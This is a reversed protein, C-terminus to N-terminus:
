KKPDVLKKFYKDLSLGAKYGLTHKANYTLCNMIMLRFDSELQQISKYEENTAKILMGRLDIPNRIKVFYDPYMNPDVPELFILADPHARLKQIITYFDSHGTEEEKAAIPKAHPDFALAWEQNFFSELEKGQAYVWDDPRNFLFCNDLMLQVDAKFDNSSGYKNSALKKQVTSLDMPHKIIDKYEPIGLAIPDVPKLFISGYQNQQLRKLVRTCKKMDSSSLSGTAKESIKKTVIPSASKEVQSPSPTAIKGTVGKLEEKVKKDFPKLIVDSKAAVVSKSAVVPKTASIPKSIVLPKHSLSATDSIKSKPTVIATSSSNDSAKVEAEFAKLMKLADQHVQTEFTNFKMANTFILRGKAIFDEFSKIRGEKLRTKLTSFDMPHKIVDRYTPLNLAIPDVPELFWAGEPKLMLPKLIRRCRKYLDVAQDARDQSSKEYSTKEKSSKEYTHKEKYTKESDVKEKAPKEQTLSTKEKAPKEQTLLTKEKAPKEQPTSIKDKVPYGQVIKEKPLPTFVESSLAPKSIPPPLKVVTKPPKVSLSEKEVQFDTLLENFHSEFKKAQYYIPSGEANYKYCNSFILRIDELFLGIDNKYVGSELKKQATSIDMPKKIITSYNPAIIDDVPLVFAASSPHNRMRTLFKTCRSVFSSSQSLKDSSATVPTLDTKPKPKPTEPFDKPSTQPTQDGDKQLKPKKALPFDESLERKLSVPAHDIKTEPQTVLTSPMRLVLKPKPLAEVPPQQSIDFQTEKPLRPPEVIPEKYADYLQECLRLLYAKIRIEKSASLLNWLRSSVEPTQFINKCLEYESFDKRAKKSTDSTAPPICESGGGGSSDQDADADKTKSAHNAALAVSVSVMAKAVHYRIYSSPDMEVLDFLYKITPLSQLRTLLVLSDIAIIRVFNCNGFRMLELCCVTVVNHYSSNLRDLLLYREVEEVTEFFFFKEDPSLLDLESPKKKPIDEKVKEIVDFVEVLSDYEQLSAGFSSAAKPPQPEISERQMAPTFSSALASILASVFFADSYKALSFAAEMRLRYFYRGETLVRALAAASVDLTNEGFSRYGLGQTNEFQAVVDIDRTLQDIWMSRLQDYSKLCVWNNDPDWRIWDLSRSGRDFQDLDPGKSTEEPMLSDMADEGDDEDMQYGSMEEGLKRLKKLKQGSRSNRRRELAKLMRITKGFNVEVMMKKRNFKYKIAFKPCGSGYIWQDAFQRLETKESVKRCVKLWSQTSIGLQLEGSM